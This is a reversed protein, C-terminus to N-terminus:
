QTRGSVLFREKNLPILSTELSVHSWGFVSPNRFYDLVRRRRLQSIFIGIAGQSCHRLDFPWPQLQLRDILVQLYKLGYINLHNELSSLWGVRGSGPSLCEHFSAKRDNIKLPPSSILGSVMRVTMRIDAKRRHMELAISTSTLFTTPFCQETVLSALQWRGLSGWSYFIDYWQKSDGLCGYKCHWVSSISAPDRQIKSPNPKSLLSHSSFATPKAAVGSHWNLM